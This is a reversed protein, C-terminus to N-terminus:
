GRQLCGGNQVGSLAHVRNGDRTGKLGGRVGRFQPKKCPCTPAATGRAAGRPAGGPSAPCTGGRGRGTPRPPPPSRRHPSCVRNRGGGRVGEASWCVSQCLAALYVM